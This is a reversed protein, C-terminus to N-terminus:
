ETPLPADFFVEATEGRVVDATKSAKQGGRFTVDIRHRGEWFAATREKLKVGDVLVTAGEPRDVSLWGRAFEVRLFTREEAAATITLTRKLGLEKNEVTVANPGVPLTLLAPTVGFDQGNWTVRVVPDTEIRVISAPVTATVGGDGPVEMTLPPRPGPTATAEPPADRTPPLKLAPEVKLQRAPSAKAMATPRSPDEVSSRSTLALALSLALVVAVGIGVVLRERPRPRAKSRTTTVQDLSSATEAFAVELAAVADPRPPQHRAPARPTPGEGPAMRPAAGHRFAATPRTLVAAESEDPWTPEPATSPAGAAGDDSVPSPRTTPSELEDFTDSARELPTSAPDGEGPTPETWAPVPVTIPLAQSDANTLAPMATTSEGDPDVDFTQAPAEGTDGGSTTAASDEDDTKRLPRKPTTV